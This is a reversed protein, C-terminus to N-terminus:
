QLVRAFIDNRRKVVRPALEADFECRALVDKPPYIVPEAFYEPPLLKEAGRNTTAYHVFDANRAANRPETLFDIFRAALAKRPSARPVTLYDVWLAGGERPVTFVIESNHERLMLADGNYIMAAVIGGKVLDSEEGLSVYTYSKVHPRQELLLQEAEDLARADTSNASHGLAKLAMGIADRASKIM